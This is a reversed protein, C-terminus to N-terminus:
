RIRLSPPESCAYSPQVILGATLTVGDNATNGPYLDYSALVQMGLNCSPKYTVGAWVPVFVELDLGDPPIVVSINYASQGAIHGLSTLGLGSGASLAVSGMPVRMGVRAATRMELVTDTYPVPGPDPSGAIQQSIAHLTGSSGGWAFAADVAAAFRRHEYSTSLSIGKTTMANTTYGTVTTGLTTVGTRVPMLGAIGALTVGIGNPAATTGLLSPDSIALRGQVITPAGPSTAFDRQESACGPAALVLHHEGPAIDYGIDTAVWTEYAGHRGEVLMNAGNIGTSPPAVGDVTVQLGNAPTAWFDACRLDVRLNGDPLPGLGPEVQALAAHASGLLIAVIIVRHIRM